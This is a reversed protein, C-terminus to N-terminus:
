STSAVTFTKAAPLVVTFCTGKGVESEVSITGGNKELFDVILTLGLGVGKEGSTGKATKRYSADFLHKQADPSIGIGQDRVQLIIRGDARHSTIQVEQGQHSFKIANALLNRIIFELQNRDFSAVTDSDISCNLRVGKQEAVQQYLATANQSLEGLDVAETVAEGKNLQSTGWILLNDLTELTISASMKLDALVKQQEEETLMRDEMLPIVGLVGSLPSRLDHSLVAFLKDKVLHMEQLDEKQDKLLRNQKRIKFFSFAALAAFLMSGISGGLLLNRQLTKHENESELTKISSEKQQIEYGLRTREVVAQNHHIDMSDRLEILGDFLRAAEQYKGRANYSRILFYTNQYLLDLDEFQKALDLSRSSYFIVSDYQHMKLYLDALANSTGAIGMPYGAEKYLKLAESLYIRSSDYKGTERFVNGLNLYVNPLNRANRLELTMLKTKRLAELASAYDEKQGLLMGLNGYAAMLLEKDGTQEAYRISKNQYAVANDYDEVQGYIIGIKYNLDAVAADDKIRESLSLAQLFWDLAKASKNQMGNNIGELSYLKSLEQLNNHRKHYTISKQYYFDAKEYNSTYMEHTGILMSADAIGKEYGNDMSLKYALKAYQLASDRDRDRILVARQLWEGVKVTDAQLEPYEDACCVGNFSLSLLVLLVAFRM